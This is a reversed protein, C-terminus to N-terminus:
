GEDRHIFFMQVKVAQNNDNTLQIFTDQILNGAMDWRIDVKSFILVSGKETASVRDQPPGPAPGYNGTSSQDDGRRSIKLTADTLFPYSGDATPPSPGLPDYQITASQYGLGHLNTGALARAMGGDYELLKVVVGLLPLDLTTFQTCVVASAVGDIRAKGHDTQLNPRVFHNPQNFLSMLRTDWCSICREAGSFKVENQNWVDFKAKTNAPGNNDQRLDADVFHLTLESNSVVLHGPVTYANSGIAQFNWLLQDFSQAFETGDFNLVGPTGTQAGTPATGVYQFGWANYEWAAADRYNIITANGALHNWSIEENNENVAFAIIYGRLVRDTSGAPDPHGPLPFSPFLVTFPSVGAPLGTLASWYTPQNATLTIENDIWNCPSDPPILAAGNIDFRYSIQQQPPPKVEGAISGGEFDWFQIPNAGGAGDPGSIETFSGFNFLNGQSNMPADPFFCVALYYLGPAPITQATGDTAIPLIQSRLDTGSIDDNALLGRGDARFLFLRTDASPPTGPNVTSLLFNNPDTILVLYMDRLDPESGNVGSVGGLSGSIRSLEGFGTVRQANGPLSGADTSEVWEPGALCTSGCAIASAVFLGKMMSSMKM